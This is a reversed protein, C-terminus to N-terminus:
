PDDPQASERAAPVRVIWDDEFDPSRIWHAEDLALALATSDEQATSDPDSVLFAQEPQADPKRRFRIKIAESGFGLPEVELVEAGEARLHGALQRALGLLRKKEQRIAKAWEEAEEYAEALPAEERWELFERRLSDDEFLHELIVDVIFRRQDDDARRYLRALEGVIPTADGEKRLLRAVLSSGIEFARSSPQGKAATLEQKLAELDSPM